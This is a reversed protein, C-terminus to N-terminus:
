RLVKVKMIPSPITARDSNYVSITAYIVVFDHAIAKTRTTGTLDGSAAGFKGSADVAGDYTYYGAKRDIVPLDVMKWEHGDSTKMDMLASVEFQELLGVTGTQVAFFTALADAANSLENTFYFEKNLYQYRKDSENYLSQERVYSNLMALTAQNGVVDIMDNFDNTAMLPEIMGMIFDKEENPAVVENAVFAVRGGLDDGLVQTKDAELKALCAQDLQLQFAKLVARMSKQFDRERGIENNHYLAPYEIFGAAMTTFTVTMRNSTNLDDAIVLPLSTRTTVTKHDIVPMTMGTGLSALAKMKMDESIVGNVDETQKRFVEYAGASSLRIEFRDLRENDARFELLRTAILSM